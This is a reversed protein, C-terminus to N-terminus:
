DFYGCAAAYKAREMSHLEPENSTAGYYVANVREILTDLNRYMMGMTGAVFRVGIHDTERTVRIRAPLITLFNSTYNETNEM